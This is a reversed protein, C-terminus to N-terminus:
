KPVWIWYGPSAGGIAKPSEISTTPPTSYIPGSAGTQAFNKYIYFMDSGNIVGDLNFDATINWNSSSSTAGYAAKEINFDATNITNDENLDGTLLTLPASSNLTSTSASMIFASSTAIQATPKIYATYQSGVTLGALSLNNFVGTNPLDITFSLLYTTQKGSTKGASIGVFVKSAQKLAPRGELILKFSLTPGFTIATTPTEPTPSPSSEASSTSEQNLLKKIEQQATSTVGSPTADTLKKGLPNSIPAVIKSNPENARSKFIQQKSVLYSGIPVSLILFIYGLLALRTKWSSFM